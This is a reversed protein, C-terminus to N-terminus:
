KQAIVETRTAEGLLVFVPTETVELRIKGDEIQVPKENGMLDRLRATKANTRLAVEAKSKGNEEQWLVAVQGSRDKFLYGYQGEPLDLEGAYDTDDLSAIVTNYAVYAAKPWTHEYDMNEPAWSRDPDKRTLRTYLGYTKGMQRPHEAFPMDHLNFWTYAMAGRARAFTVKKALTRAQYREGRRTDMGTETFFLPKPEPMEKKMFPLLREDLETEFHDKFHGHTHYALIDFHEHDERLIKEIMGEKAGKHAMSVFGATMVQMDPDVAKIAGYASRLLRRYEDITGQWFGIDPENWIEWYKVSGKYRKALETLYDAWADLKPYHKDSKRGHARAWGPTSMLLGFVDIGHQGYAELIRDAREWNWRDDRGEIRSWYMPGRIIEVGLLATALAAEESYNDPSAGYAMAFLFDGHPREPPGNPQMYAFSVRAEESQEQGDELWFRVWKIGERAFAERPMGVRLDQGPPLELDKEKEVTAGDFSEVSLRITAGAKDKGDNSVVIVPEEEDGPSVVDVPHGSEFEAWLTGLEARRAPWGKEEEEQGAFLAPGM